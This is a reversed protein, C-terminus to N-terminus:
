RYLHRARIHAQMKNWGEKAEKASEVAEEVDGTPIEVIVRGTSINTVGVKEGEGPLFTNDYFDGLDRSRIWSMAAGDSDVAASYELNEFVAKEKTRSHGNFDEEGAMIVDPLQKNLCVNEDGM